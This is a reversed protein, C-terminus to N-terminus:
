SSNWWPLGVNIKLIIMGQYDRERIGKRQGESNYQFIFNQLSVFSTATFQSQYPIVTVKDSVGMMLMHYSVFCTRFLEM